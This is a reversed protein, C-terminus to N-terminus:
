KKRIPIFALSKVSRELFKCKELNVRVNHKNLRSLVDFLKSKCESENVGGILIDDLYCFVNDLSKLIQDMVSQFIAPASSIGFALRSYQFLGKHTNVTLLEQSDASVGLQQYAGTLDIVCFVKCNALSSFIDSIKPLPYHETELCKNITVKCDLCIRIDGNPKPVIVAPTVWRSFKVPSLINESVLRELEVTVKERIKFPVGYAAHFIPIAGEKLVLDASYGEIPTNLGKQVVKPFKINIESLLKSKTSVSNFYYNEDEDIFASRWHPMLADLWNRGMLACFHHETDIIVIELQATKAGLKVKVSITGLEILHHGSISSLSKSSKVYPINKFYQGYEARSIITVCAGTDVEFTILCNEVDLQYKLPYHHIGGIVCVTNIEGDESEVDM